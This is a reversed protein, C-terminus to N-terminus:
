VQVGALERSAADVIERIERELNKPLPEARHNALLDLKRERCRSACDAAGGELWAQYYQRDLLNPFWLERRFHEVTHMTDIFTGGPGVEEILDLAFADDSFDIQRMTSEIYGIIEDQLVLMDLSSAQDVGCIGLHGFIDAGAAAGMALTVGAELGAQADPRKSDTLGVNIYVPLGYHKGMRTMGVGFIAQEPGAFIMQTTGMDFAHCIGGYCVPLGPSIAQVVCIGALIEANELAMTGAVTCPASLGMQAMPGISVPLNFRATEYLLDIGDHPFRLPSIPELFAYCLPYEAAKQEDGRLAVIIDMVYRTSARDHFWFHVPKTTNTILGDVVHVTRAAVSVDHPDSMAGVVNINDLGDAFRAAIAVDDLTAFRRKEGIEDVWSAEGAISNYNREGQGFRATNALNRGFITFQKGAQELARAVLEEPFRVRQEAYTVKAGAQELRELTEPHPILVGVRELISVSAQHVRRIQDDTLIRSFMM